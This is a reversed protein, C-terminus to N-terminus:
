SAKEPDIGAQQRLMRIERSTLRRADGRKLGSCTVPGYAVRDLARIRRGVAGHGVLLSVGGIEFLQLAYGHLTEGVDDEVAADDRRCVGLVDLAEDVVDLARGNQGPDPEVALCM